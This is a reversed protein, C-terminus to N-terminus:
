PTVQPGALVEAADGVPCSIPSPSGSNSWHEVALVDASGSPVGSLTVSENAPRFM